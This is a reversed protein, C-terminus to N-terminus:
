RPPSRASSARTPRRRHRWPQGTKLQKTWEAMRAMPRTVSWRVVMWTIGTLLLILVGIRVATRRWLDWESLELYQADLLVVAAGVM